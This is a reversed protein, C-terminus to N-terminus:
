AIRRPGQAARIAPREILWWGAASLALTLGLVAAGFSWPDAQPWAAQLALLAGMHWLYIGYSFDGSLRLAANPRRPSPLALAAAVSLGAAVALASRLGIVSAPATWYVPMFFHMLAIAGIWALLAAGALTAALAGSTRGGRAMWWRAALMGAVFEDIVGPLQTSQIFVLNADSVPVSAVWHWWVWSRWALAVGVGALALWRMPVRLLWPGILLVLLYFQAEVGLTWSPGNIVGHTSVFLNQVFFLHALLVPVVDARQLIDPRVLLVFLAGTLLYLPVIRAARRRVFAARWDAGFRQQLQALSILIVAGSIAFFLDVGLMGIRLWAVPYWTPIPLAALAVLHYALVSLAAFGRLPDLWAFRALSAPAPVAPAATL